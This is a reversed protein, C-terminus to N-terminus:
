YECALNHELLKLMWVQSHIYIYICVEEINNRGGLGGRFCNSACRRETQASTSMTPVTGHPCDQRPNSDGIRFDEGRLCRM